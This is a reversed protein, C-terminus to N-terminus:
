KQDNKSRQKESEAKENKAKNIIETWTSNKDWKSANIAQEVSFLAQRKSSKKDM